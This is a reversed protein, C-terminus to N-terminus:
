ENDKLLEIDFMESFNKLATKRFTLLDSCAVSSFIFTWECAEQVLSEKKMDEQPTPHFYNEYEYNNAEYCEEEKIEILINIYKCRVDVFFQKMADESKDYVTNRYCVKQKKFENDREDRIYYMNRREDVCFAPYEEANLTAIKEKIKELAHGSATPGEYLTNQIVDRDFEICDYLQRLTFSGTANENIMTLNSIKGSTHLPQQQQQQQSMMMMMMQQMMEPNMQNMQNMMPNMQNMMPNM